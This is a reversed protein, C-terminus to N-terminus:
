SLLLVPLNEKTADTINNTEMEPFTEIMGIVDNVVTISKVSSIYDSFEGNHFRSFNGTEPNFVILHVWNNIFWEYMEPVSQITKLVIEPLHEVIILLRVPDHVEIMQVPLGPRLDGDASNAVGILGMVNHPLKTGAGLKFNDVRSFYYELNIGGCVPGLPKMIGVLFKGDPDTRYDYSNLFARRDMFLGKTVDRRGVICLTNTGHGLEPRPEFLSVSRKRIDERVKGLGSKTNISHFRRSREKANLDLAIEFAISNLQHKDYTALDCIETDFYAIEDSATDHLGGIFRTTKPISIGRANLMDRVKSHNAMFAFVRSNVSGPRGSCAGCDHAGHHPNNASSSGHALVYIIPAFDKVLAIGRLLSEVRDCMESISFGIQLGNEINNPDTNEITLSSGKAMHAFANSIAPSMAPRFLNLVLKIGAWLGLTLTFLTGLFFSHSSKSYLLEHERKENVGYEKILFKPTVPAPCLKDYFKGNEPHFFFEVGFFGPTGFTECNPDISEIHRRLSCEREDICFMAQFSKTVLLENFRERECQIGTLVDDYYSWEFADQWMSLVENLETQPVEQFIEFPGTEVKQALPQWNKGLQTDLADIELLLEVFILDHLLIRRKDMLSNPDDEIASVIGSWGPHSFQQDFIYQKFFRSDGVTIRLLDIISTDDNLLLERSRKSNFFSSYSNTELNRISALFGDKHLPFNWNSIGQDLYSCLVRFLLPQVLTDVDVKYESEWRNRLRGIRHENITDYEDDLLKYKWQDIQNNGKREAIVRDLVAQKIRGDQFLKRYEFLQLTVSYGFIKSAKFIADYFKMNQFAHLSNHHIFDKLPSQAPLYHKLQHIVEDLDFTIHDSNIAEAKETNIVKIGLSDSVTDKVITTNM